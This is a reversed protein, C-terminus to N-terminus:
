KNEKKWIKTQQDQFLKLFVDNGTDDETMEKPYWCLMIKNQKKESLDDWWDYVKDITSIQLDEGM